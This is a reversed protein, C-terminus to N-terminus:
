DLIRVLGTKLDHVGGVVKLEGSKVLPALIPDLTKLRQVNEKVNAEIANTLKDGPKGRVSAAAPRLLEVLDRISGPLVDNADIHAIAAKVAGCSEHGMVMIMRVGLEAVAFELSGKLSPGTGSIINGAVRVVFLDGVGQDFVIEPTVRSDACAVIAAIPAQGEAVNRFDEPRRRPNELEGKAFRRNGELLDKLVEDPTPKQALSATEAAPAANDRNAVCLTGAAFAVFGRRTTQSEPMTLSELNSIDFWRSIHACESYPLADM